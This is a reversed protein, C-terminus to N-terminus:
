QYTVELQPRNGSTSSEGSYYGIYDNGGDDNDDLSFYVRLQTTGTKDLAALGAANLSGESWTGNSAANSLSAAQAATAAAQFDSTQLATSGSFGGTQVDVWCTGHTTFPNTGSLTGRRLRLTASVITAGDPIASTDFSVVSKYQRDANNDGVRLASTTSATASITGGADSTENSERIWGDEAGVSIFTVTVPSTAAAPTASAENSSLGEGEANTASVVYYYTTGNTLGTDTFSTGVINTQVTTYPGGSTSARHVSYGTAGSAATWSLAVQANGATAALGSTAEPSAVPDVQFIFTGSKMDSVLVNGSPLFAYVNWAGDYHGTISQNFTGDGDPDRWTEYKGVEVANLPNSIDFVRFGAEYYAVMLYKGRLQGNHARSSATADGSYQFSTVQTPSAPDSVDYVGIDRVNFEEFAYLYHSDDDLWVSHAYIGSVAASEALLSTTGSSRANSIDVVRYRTAYGDGVFLLDKGGSGPVNTRAFSDHCDHGSGSWSAILPPDFPDALLDFIQCGLTSGSNATNLFLLGDNISVTHGYNTRGRDAIGAPPIPNSDVGDPTSDSLYSLDVVWFNGSSQAAVYAYTKGSVPDQHTDVDRWIRGKPPSVGGSMDIYQVQYPAAPDTVDLIHLGFSNCQLAYERTGAAYGWIGNYLTGTSTNDSYYPSPPQSDLQGLKTVNGDGTYSAPAAAFSSEPAALGLVADLYLHTEGSLQGAREQSDLWLDLQALNGQFYLTEIVQHQAETIAGDEALGHLYAETAEPSEEHAWALPAALVFAVALLAVGIFSVPIRRASRFIVSDHM